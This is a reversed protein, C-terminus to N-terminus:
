NKLTIEIRETGRAVTLKRVETQKTRLPRASLKVGNVEEIVDGIRVGSREALSSEKVTKVKLNGNEKVVEIGLFPFVQEDSVSSSNNPNSLAEVPQSPNIGLPLTVLPESVASDRYGFGDTEAVNNKPAATRSKPPLKAAVFPKRQSNEIPEVSADANNAAPAERPADAAAIQDSVFSNVPAIEPESTQPVGGAGIQPANNNGFFFSTNFALLGLVLAVLCLPLVYRLAPLFRPTQFDAPKAGAIKAKVRFDFDNPADVRKLDDIMQWVRTQIGSTKKCGPCDNLHLQATRSLVSREEFEATFERCNM